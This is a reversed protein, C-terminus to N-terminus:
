ATPLEGMNGFYSRMAASASRSLEVFVRRGDRPDPRRQCLDADAMATIWRLATTAPVDAVACLSSVTVRLQALEAAFLNLLMDWAPDAFLEPDFYRARERRARIVRCVAELSVESAGQAAEVVEETPRGESDTALRALRSALRSVEESLHHLRAGAGSKAPDPSGTRDSRGLSEFSHLSNGM